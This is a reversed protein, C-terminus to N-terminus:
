KQLSRVASSPPLLKFGPTHNQASAPPESIQWNDPNAPDGSTYTLRYYFELPYYASWDPTWYDIYGYLDYTTSSQQTADLQFTSLYFVWGDNYGFEQNIFDIVMPDTYYQLASVALFGNPDCQTLTVTDVVQVTDYHNQVTVVTDHVYNTQYVTDTTHITVTDTTQVTVSDNVFVTDTIMITDPPLQIYETDHVKESSEMIREKDCSLLLLAAMLSLLILGTLLKRSM